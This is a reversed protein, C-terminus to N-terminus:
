KEAPADAGSPAPGASEPAPPGASPAEDAAPAPGHIGAPAPPGSDDARGTATRGHGIPLFARLGAGDSIWLTPAEGAEAPAEWAVYRWDGTRAVLYAGEEAGGLSVEFHTDTARVTWDSGFMKADIQQDKSGDPRVVTFQGVDGHRLSSELPARVGATEMSPRLSTTWRALAGNRLQAHLEDGVVVPGLVPPEELKWPGELHGDERSVLWVSGTETLFMMMDTRAPLPLPRRAIGSLTKIQQTWRQQGNWAIRSVNGNRDCVVYEGSSREGIPTPVADVRGPTEFHFAPTRSLVLDVDQPGQIALARRDFEDLQFELVWQDQFTGEITFPTTREIAQDSGQAKISVTVGPPTTEVQFPLMVRVTEEFTENLIELAKDHRGNAAAKRANQVADRKTRVEAIEERLVRRVKGTTDNELIMEYHRIARDYNHRELATHALDLLRDNEALTQKRESELKAISREYARKEVLAAVDDLNELFESTDLSPYADDAVKSRLAECQEKVQTEVVLQQPAETSPSGLTLVEERMRNPIATLVDGIEPWTTNVLQLRPPTPLEAVMDIAKAIDGQQAEMQAAHYDDLWATRQAVENSRLRDELERRLDSVEMSGDETFHADLQALGTRPDALMGRIEDIKDTRDKEIKVKVVAGAGLLVVVTSALAVNRRMKKSATSQRKGRTLLERAERHRPDQEILTRLPGLIRDAHGQALLDTCASVVWPAGEETRGAQLLGMGLELRQPVSDPQLFAAITFAPGSRMPSGHERMERALDLVERVDMDTSEGEERLRMATLRLRAIRDSPKIRLAETWHVVAHSPSQLTADLRRLLTRVHRMPMARLASTLRGALWENTLAEADEAVLPGPTGTRCWLSLRSAARAFQKRQLEHLALRLVEIPHAMRLGGADFASMAALQAQRVPWGLRDAIELITSNGDIEQVLSPPLSGLEDTHAVCPIVDEDILTPHGALEAEDAIRAYELLLFEVQTAKCHIETEAHGEEELRTERVPLAGPDFRFHVGGGDLLAYLTELRAAQVVQSMRAANITFEPDDAWANRARSRWDEANEDPDPLLWASGEEMGLVSRYGSRSTLTLVGEKRGRALGQLLEALGIGRVDGQFSM